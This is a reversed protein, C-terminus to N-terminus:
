DELYGLMALQDLIKQKDEQSPTAEVAQWQTAPGKQPPHAAQFEPSFCSAVRGQFDEPIPLGLSYLLTPAVDVISFPEGRQRRIGKGWAIFIGEPHHTGAPHPRSIVAPTLDRISVFGHDRLVLTLDPAKDMAKGPFASEKTLIDAIVPEGRSGKLARLDEMLRQRFATYDAPAIGPWGPAKAVRIYIANSSPTPCYALTKEWDLYAFPSNARRQSPADDGPKKFVLYGKDALYRNIRVVETTATFGHDSALFVRVDPGAKEVLHRIFGDLRRFYSLCLARM